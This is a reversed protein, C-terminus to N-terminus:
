QRSLDEGPAATCAWGGARRPQEARGAFPIRHIQILYPIWGRCRLQRFQVLHDGPMGEAAGRTRKGVGSGGSTLVVEALRPFQGSLCCVV